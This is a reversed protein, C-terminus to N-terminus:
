PRNILEQAIGCFQDALVNAYIELPGGGGSIIGEIHGSPACREAPHVYCQIESLSFLSASAIIYKLLTRPKEM